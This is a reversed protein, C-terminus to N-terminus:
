LPEGNQMIGYYSSVYFNRGIESIRVGGPICVEVDAGIEPTKTNDALAFHYRRIPEGESFSLALFGTPKSHLQTLYTHDIVTFQKWCFGESKIRHRLRVNSVALLLAFFVGLCPVYKADMVGWQFISAVLLIVIGIENARFHKELMPPYNTKNM